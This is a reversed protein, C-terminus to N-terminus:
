NQPPLEMPDILTDWTDRYIEDGTDMVKVDLTSSTEEFHVHEPTIELATAYGLIGYTLNQIAIFSGDTYLRDVLLHLQGKEDRTIELLRRAVIVEDVRYNAIKFQGHLLRNIPQGRGNTTVAYYSTLRQCTEVPTSGRFAM